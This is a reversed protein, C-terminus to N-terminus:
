TLSTVVFVFVIGSVLGILASHLTPEILYAGVTTLTYIALRNFQYEKM